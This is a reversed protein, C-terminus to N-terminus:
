QRDRESLMRGFIEIDDSIATKLEDFSAFRRDVRVLWRLAVRLEAGYFDKTFHHMLHAEISPRDNAFTPNTGISLVAPHTEGKHVGSLFTAFGAYVGMRTGITAKLAEDIHELDLNATPCGLQRKGRGFGHIVHGSVVLDIPEWVRVAESALIGGDTM